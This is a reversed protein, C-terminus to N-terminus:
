PNAHEWGFSVGRPHAVQEQEIRVEDEEVVAREASAWPRHERFVLAELALELVLRHLEEAELAAKRLPDGGNALPKGRVHAGRGRVQDEDGVRSRGDVGDDAREVQLGTVLDDGRRVLVAAVVQEPAERAFPGA